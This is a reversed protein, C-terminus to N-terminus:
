ASLINVWKDRARRSVLILAVRLPNCIASSVQTLLCCVSSFFREPYVSLCNALLNMVARDGVRRRKPRIATIDIRRRTRTRLSEELVYKLDKNKDQDKPDPGQGQGQPAPGQGQGPGQPRTRTRTRTRTKLEQM